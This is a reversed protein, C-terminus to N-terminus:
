LIPLIGGLFVIAVLFLFKFLKQRKRTPHYAFNIGSYIAMLTILLGFYSLALTRFFIATILGMVNLVFLNGLNNTFWGLNDWLRIEKHYGVKSYALSSVYLLPIALVLEAIIFQGFRHPDISFMFTLMVFLSGMMFSNITIKANAKEPNTVFMNEKKM